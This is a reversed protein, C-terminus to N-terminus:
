SSSNEVPPISRMLASGGGGGRARRLTGGGGGINGASGGGGSASVFLAGRINGSGSGVFIEFAGVGGSAGLGGGKGRAAAGVFVSGDLGDLASDLASDLTSSGTLVSIAEADVESLGM